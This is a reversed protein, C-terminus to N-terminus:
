ESPLQPPTAEGAVRASYAAMASATDVINVIGQDIPIDDRENQNALPGHEEFGVQHDNTCYKGEITGAKKYMQKHLNLQNKSVVHLLHALRAAEATHKHHVVRLTLAGQKFRTDRATKVPKTHYYISM